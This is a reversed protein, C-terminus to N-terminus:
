GVIRYPTQARVAERFLEQNPTTQKAAQRSTFAAAAASSWTALSNKADSADTVIPSICPVGGAAGTLALPAVLMALLGFGIVRMWIFKM